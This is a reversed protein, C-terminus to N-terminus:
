KGEEAPKESTQRDKQVAEDTSITEKAAATRELRIREAFEARASASLGEVMKDFEKKAEDGQLGDRHQELWFKVEADSMKDLEKARDLRWKELALRNARDEDRKAARERARRLLEKQPMPDALESESWGFNTWPRSDSMADKLSNAKAQAEEATDFVYPTMFVLLEKRDETRQTSSFLWKGIWPIDKLIPIGTTSEGESTETLGGLVVTQRNDLSIDASMKRTITTPVSVSSTTSGGVNAQISQNAGVQSYEEEVSLMVTGNPNIKPTVKITLGIEKQEYDPVTTGNYTSGSYTYGKLLYRMQTAEITAEKNDVTMVIPSAVYKSRSDDKSAQIVAAINLKDSKLLYNIGSGIPNAGGFLAGDVVNTGVNMMTNLLAAGSGGGGGLAYSGNNAFGDRLLGYVPVDVEKMEYSYTIEGTQPDATPTSVRQWQKETGIVGRQRGRQVWDIGTKLDDGLTVEVIATEILVQSLKVDMSDIIGQVTPWVDKHAMVVLGNIRKDALVTVNDKSLEGAKSEGSRANSGANNRNASLQPTNRTLNGNNGNRANQNQNGRQSSKAASSNGILDNIMDAVDEADAYKLRVVKVEVEPTTTVDLEDIVKNFFKMNAESTIVILKNSREDATILVKGRIMGRDADSVSSVLSELSAPTPPQNNQPQGPRRLLTGNPMSVLPSYPPRNQQMGTQQAKGAKELEKQSEQVIQELATKIDTASAHEIQRVFVNENIPTAIDIERAIKRMVNINIGTDTVLIKGTREYVNLMGKPSKLGELVTKAEDVPINKFPIMLAYVTMTDPIEADEELRVPVGEPRAKDRPLARIFKEGYAELQINNQGFVAELAKIQDEKTLKQGPQSVLTIKVDTVAPDRLITKNVLQGYIKLAIDLETGAPIFIDSAQEDDAGAPVGSARAEPVAPAAAGPLAAAGRAAGPNASLLGGGTGLTRRPVAREQALLASALTVASIAMLASKKM